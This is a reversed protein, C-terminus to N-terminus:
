RHWPDFTANKKPSPFFGVKLSPIRIIPIYVGVIPNILKDDGLMLLKGMRTKKVGACRPDCQNTDKINLM